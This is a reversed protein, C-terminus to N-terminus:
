RRHDDDRRHDRDIEIRERVYRPPWQYPCANHRRIVLERQNSYYCHREGRFAYQNVLRPRPRFEDRGGPPPGPPQAAAGLSAVLLTAALIHKFM